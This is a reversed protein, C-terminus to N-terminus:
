AAIWTDFAAPLRSGPIRRLQFSVNHSSNRCSRHLSEGPTRRDAVQPWLWSWGGREVAGEYAALGVM